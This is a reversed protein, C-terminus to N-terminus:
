GEVTRTRNGNADLACVMSSPCRTISLWVFNSGFCSSRCESNVRDGTLAFADPTGSVQAEFLATITTAPILQGQVNFEELLMRREQASLIELQHLPMNPAAM